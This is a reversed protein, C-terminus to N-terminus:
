RATASAVLSLAPLEFNSGGFTSVVRKAIETRVAALEDEPLRRLVMAIAGAADILFSWYDDMDAFRWTFPVEDIEIEGLGGEALLRRLGDLDALALIGPAGPQPTLHGLEALVRAPLAAWPNAAPNGFVACSLRGRARLVRRTEAVALQPERMLMYGWRCMVGDVSASAMDLREADLVRTQVNDLGLSRALAGALEVMETSFDSVIVKGQPGVLPAVTLGVVGTGAALELIAEGPRPALREVMRETVPRSREELYAHLRGWGPAMADWVARSAQKFGAADIM